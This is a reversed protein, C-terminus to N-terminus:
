SLECWVEERVSLKGDGELCSTDFHFNGCRMAIDDREDM